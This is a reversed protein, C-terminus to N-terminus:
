QLTMRRFWQRLPTGRPHAKPLHRLCPHVATLPRRPATRARPVRRLRRLLQTRSLQHRRTLAHLFSSQPLVAAACGHDNPQEDWEAVAPLLRTCDSQAAQVQAQSVGLQQATEKPIGGNSTPDPFNPVGHSRMCSSYALLGSAGTSGHASSSAATSTTTTSGTAVGPTSPGGCAALGFGAVALVAIFALTGPQRADERGIV